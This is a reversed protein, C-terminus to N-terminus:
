ARTVVGEIPRGESLWADIGGALPRVRRFGKERLARAILAASADNPCDCYVIVEAQPDLQLDDVNGVHISGPIWGFRERREPSRVDLVVAKGKADLMAALEPISIRAMRVQAM